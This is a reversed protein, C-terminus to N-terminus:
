CYNLFFFGYKLGTSWSVLFTQILAPKQDWIQFVGLYIFCFSLNLKSPYKPNELDNNSTYKISQLVKFFQM